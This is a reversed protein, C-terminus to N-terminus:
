LKHYIVIYININYKCIIIYQPDCYLNWAINCIRNQLIFITHEVSRDPQQLSSSTMVESDDDDLQTLNPISNFKKMKSGTKAGGGGM